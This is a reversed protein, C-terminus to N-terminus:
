GGSPNGGRGTKQGHCETRKARVPQLVNQRLISGCRNPFSSDKVMQNVGDHQKHQRLPFRQGGPRPPTKQRANHNKGARKIQQRHGVRVPQAGDGRNPPILKRAPHSQSAMLAARALSQFAGPFDMKEEM